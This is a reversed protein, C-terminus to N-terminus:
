RRESTDRSGDASNVGLGPSDELRDFVVGNDLSTDANSEGNTQSAGTDPISDATDEATDEGAEGNAEEAPPAVPVSTVSDVSIALDYRISEGSRNIVVLEYDGDSLSGSWKSVARSM